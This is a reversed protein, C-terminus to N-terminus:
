ISSLLHVVVATPHPPNQSNSHKGVQWSPKPNPLLNPNAQSIRLVVDYIYLFIM